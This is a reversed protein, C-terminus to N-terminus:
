FSNATPFFRRIIPHYGGSKVAASAATATSAIAKQQKQQILSYHLAISCIFERVFEQVYGYTLGKSKKMKIALAEDNSYDLYSELRKTSLFERDPYVFACVSGPAVGITFNSFIKYLFIAVEQALQLFKPNFDLPKLLQKSIGIQLHEASIDWLKERVFNAKCFCILEENHTDM